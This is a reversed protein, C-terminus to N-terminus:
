SAPAAEAPAYPTLDIRGAAHFGRRREACKNCAGCHRDGVPRLCSFTHELPLGSGRRMVEDKGLREFPRLLRLRGVLSRNVVDELVRFFEPTSDPFPNGRLCGLAL